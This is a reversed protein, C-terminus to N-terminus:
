TSILLLPRASTAAFRAHSAGLRLRAVDTGERRSLTLILRDKLNKLYRYLSVKGLYATNFPWEDEGVGWSEPDSYGFAM